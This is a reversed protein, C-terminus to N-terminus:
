LFCQQVKGIENCNARFISEAEFYNYDPIYGDGWQIINKKYVLDGDTQKVLISCKDLDNNTFKFAFAFVQRCVEEKNPLLFKHQLVKGNSQDAASVISEELKKAIFKHLEEKNKNDSLARCQRLYDFAKNMDVDDNHVNAVSSCSLFCNHFLKKRPCTCTLQGLATMCELNNLIPRPIFHKLKTKQRKQQPFLYTNGLSTCNGKSITSEAPQNM